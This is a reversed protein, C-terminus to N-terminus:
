LDHARSTQRERFAAQLLLAADQADEMPLVARKQSIKFYQKITLSPSNWYIPSFLERKM